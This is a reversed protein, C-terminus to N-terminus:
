ARWYCNAEHYVPLCCEQNLSSPYIKSGGTFYKQQWIVEDNLSLAWHFLSVAWRWWRWWDWCQRRSFLCFLFPPHSPPKSFGPPIYRSHLVLLVAVRVLILVTRRKMVTWWLCAQQTKQSVRGQSLPILWVRFHRVAVGWGIVPLKTSVEFWPKNGYIHM